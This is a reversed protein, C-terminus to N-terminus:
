RVDFRWLALPAPGPPPSPAASDAASDAASGAAPGAVSCPLPSHVSSSISRTSSRSLSSSSSEFRISTAMDCPSESSTALKIPASSDSTAERVEPFRPLTYSCARTHLIRM